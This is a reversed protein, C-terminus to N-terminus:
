PTLCQFVFKPILILLISQFSHQLSWGLLQWPLVQPCCWAICHFALIFTQHRVRKVELQSVITKPKRPYGRNLCTFIMVPDAARLRTLLASWLYNTSCISFVVQYLHQTDFWCEFVGQDYPLHPGQIMPSTSHFELQILPLIRHFKLNVSLLICFFRKAVTLGSFIVLILGQIDRL